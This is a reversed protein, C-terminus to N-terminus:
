PTVHGRSLFVLVYMAIWGGVFLLAYIAVIALTGAPHQHSHSTPDPPRQDDPMCGGAALSLGTM